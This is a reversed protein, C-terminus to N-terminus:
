TPLVGGEGKSRPQRCAPALSISNNKKIEEEANEAGEATFRHIRGSADSKGYGSYERASRGRRATPHQSSDGCTSAANNIKISIRVEQYSDYYGSSKVASVPLTPVVVRLTDPAEVVLPIVLVPLMAVPVRPVVPLAVTPPVSPTVPADVRLPPAVILLPAVTFPPEVRFPPTVTVPRFLPLM